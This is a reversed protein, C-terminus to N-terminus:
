GPPDFCLDDEAVPVDVQPEYSTVLHAEGAPFRVREEVRLVLFSEQAVWVTVPSRDGLQTVEHPDAPAPLFRGSLRYCRAGGLWDDEAVLDRTLDTLRRGGVVSPLLLAPITHSSKASVGAARALPVGVCDAFEVGPVVDWWTRVDGGRAWVIFRDWPEADGARDLFEFRLRDPRIFATVFPKYASRTPRGHHTGRTAVVGEDRYTACGAYAAAGCALLLEPPM